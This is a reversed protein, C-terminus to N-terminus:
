DYINLLIFRINDRNLTFTIRQLHKSSTTNDTRCIYIKFGLLGTQGPTYHDLPWLVSPINSSTNIDIKCNNVSNLEFWRLRRRLIYWFVWLSGVRNPALGWKTKHAWFHLLLIFNIITIMGGYVPIIWPKVNSSSMFYVGKLDVVANSIRDRVM